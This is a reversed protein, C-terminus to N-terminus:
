PEVRLRRQRSPHAVSATANTTAPMQWGIIQGASNKWPAFGHEAAVSEIVDAPIRTPFYILRRQFILVALVILLYAIVLLQLVRFLSRWFGAKPKSSSSNM